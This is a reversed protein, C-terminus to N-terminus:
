STSSAAPTSTSSRSPRRGRAARRQFRIELGKNLFAMMQFRELLTQARFETEEFITPDPWFRSPPAPAARPAGQGHGDLKTKPKGGKTSTWTTATATATSRSRSRARVARERGLRGRRPPRRLGQLGRRRVQRRRAARHARGRGGSKKKYEPHPTSPSAAATTSSGAAATPWCPSTSAPRLSGAMAEDVSNDVVEYVLHHLGAPGTSGIYMGPRKRVAELGELVQSTRPATRSRHDPGRRPTGREISPHLRHHPEGARRRGPRATARESASCHRVSGAVAGTATVRGHM